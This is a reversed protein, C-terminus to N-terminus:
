TIQERYQFLFYAAMVIGAHFSIVVWYLLPQKEREIVLEGGGMGFIGIFVAVGYYIQAIWAAIAGFLCLIQIFLRIEM